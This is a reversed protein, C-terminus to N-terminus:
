PATPPTAPASEPAAEHAPETGTAPMPITSLDLTVPSLDSRPTLTARIPDRMWEIQDCVMPHPAGTNMRAFISPVRPEPGIRPSVPMPLPEQPAPGPPLPWAAVRKRAAAKRSGLQMVEAYLTKGGPGLACYAAYDRYWSIGSLVPDFGALHLDTIHGTNREVLLWSGTQWIFHPIKEGPLADNLHQVQLVTFSHDTVDHTDGTVWEKRRGDIILPRIQLSLREPTPNSETPSPLWTVVHPRGVAATHIKPKALAPAAMLCVLLLALPLRMAALTDPM